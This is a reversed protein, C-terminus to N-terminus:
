VVHLIFLFIFIHVQEIETVACRAIDHITSHPSHHRRVIKKLVSITGAKEMCYREAWTRQANSPNPWLAVVIIMLHVLMM